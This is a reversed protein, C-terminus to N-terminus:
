SSSEDDADDGADDDTADETPGTVETPPRSVSGPLRHWQDIAQDYRERALDELDRERVEEPVDDGGAGGGGGGGGGSDDAARMSREPGGDPEPEPETNEPEADGSWLRQEVFRRHVLVPDANPNGHTPKRKRAPRKAGGSTDDAAAM